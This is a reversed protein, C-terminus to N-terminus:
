NSNWNQQIKERFTLTLFEFAPWHLGQIEAALQKRRLWRSGKTYLHASSLVDEQWLKRGKKGVYCMDNGVSKSGGDCPLQRRAPETATEPAPMLLDLYHELVLSNRHSPPPPPLPRLHGTCTTTSYCGKCMSWLPMIGVLEKGTQLLKWILCKGLWKRQAM